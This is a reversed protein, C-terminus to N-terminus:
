RFGVLLDAVRKRFNPCTAVDQARCDLAHQTMEHSIRMDEMRRDLDALHASLVEHRGASSADLLHAIQGLSMGASKSRLIAAVRGVDDRSYRRRGGPDRAPHLLGVTEWHRLVNTALGFQVAVGGVSWSTSEM